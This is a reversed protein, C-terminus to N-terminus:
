GRARLPLRIRKLFSPALMAVCDVESKTPNSLGALTRSGALSELGALSWLGALGELGTLAQLGALGELGTLARLGALSGLGACWSKRLLGFRGTAHEGIRGHTLERGIEVTRHSSVCM